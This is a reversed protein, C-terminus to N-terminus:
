KRSVKGKNAYQSISRIKDMKQMAAAYGGGDDTDEEEPLPAPRIVLKPKTVPKVKAPPSPSRTQITTTTNGTKTDTKKTEISIKSNSVVSSSHELSPRLLKLGKQTAVPTLIMKEGMKMKKDSQRKRIEDEMAICENEYNARIIIYIPAGLGLFLYFVFFGTLSSLAYAQDCNMVQSGSNIM